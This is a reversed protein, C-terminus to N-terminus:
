QGWFVVFVGELDYGLVWVFEGIVCVGVCCLVEGVGYVVVGEGDWVEGVDYDVEQGVVGIDLSKVVVYSLVYM